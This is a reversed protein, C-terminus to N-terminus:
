NPIMERDAQSVAVFQKATDLIQLIHNCSLGELSLLHTLEGRDNIQIESASPTM